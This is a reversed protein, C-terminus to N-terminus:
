SLAEPAESEGVLQEDVAADVGNQWEQFTGFHAMLQTDRAFVMKPAMLAARAAIPREPTGAFGLKEYADAWPGLEEVKDGDIFYVNVSAELLMNAATTTESISQEGMQVLAGRTAKWDLPRYEAVLKGDWSPVPIKITSEAQLQARRQAVAAELSSPAAAVPAPSTISLTQSAEM